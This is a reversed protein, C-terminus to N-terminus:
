PEAPRAALLGDEDYILMLVHLRDIWNTFAVVQRSRVVLPAVSPRRRCPSWALLKSSRTADHSIMSSSTPLSVSSGLRM